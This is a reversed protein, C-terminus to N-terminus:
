RKTITLEMLKIFVIVKTQDTNTDVRRIKNGRYLTQKFVESSIKNTNCLFIDVM